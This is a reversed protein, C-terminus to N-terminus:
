YSMLMSDIESWTPSEESKAMLHAISRVIMDTEINVRRGITYCSFLTEKLTHPIISLRFSDGLVENITLSIGDIGVSGKPIIYRMITPNASIFFDIGTTMKQIRRITGIGDIHGQMIHGEVRDSLRMAPEIHVLEKYNELALIKQSEKSLEVEFGGSFLSTVTLCAGNIAISDGIKPTYKARIKLKPLSLSEVRGLERILGTFM